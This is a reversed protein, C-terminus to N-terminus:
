IMLKIDYKMISNKFYSINHLTVTNNIITINKNTFIIQFKFINMFALYYYNKLTDFIMLKKWYTNKM